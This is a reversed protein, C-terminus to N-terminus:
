IIYLALSGRGGMWGDPLMHVIFQEKTYMLRLNNGSNTINKRCRGWKGGLYYLIQLQITCVNYAALCRKEVHVSRRADDDSPSKTYEGSM